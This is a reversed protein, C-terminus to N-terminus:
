AALSHVATLTTEKDKPCVEVVSLVNRASSM